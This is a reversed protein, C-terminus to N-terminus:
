FFMESNNFDAPAYDSKNINFLYGDYSPSFNQNRPDNSAMFYQEWTYREMINRRVIERSQTPIDDIRPEPVSIRISTQIPPPITTPAQREKIVTRCMPCTTNWELWANLCTRCFYHGCKTKSNNEKQIKDYCIACDYLDVPLDDVSTGDSSLKNNTKNIQIHTTLKTEMRNTWYGIYIYIYLM